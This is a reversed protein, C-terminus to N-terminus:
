ISVSMLHHFVACGLTGICIGFPINCLLLLLKSLLFHFWVTNRVATLFMIISIVCMVSHFFDYLCLFALDLPQCGGLSNLVSITSVTCLECLFNCALLFMSKTIGGQSCLPGTILFFLVSYWFYMLLGSFVDQLACPLGNWKTASEYKEETVLEVCVFLFLLSM